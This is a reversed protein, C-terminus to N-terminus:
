LTDSSVGHCVILKELTKMLSKLHSLEHIVIPLMCQEANVIREKGM